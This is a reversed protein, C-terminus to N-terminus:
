AKCGIRYAATALAGLNATGAGCRVAGSGPINFSRWKGPRHTVFFPGYSQGPLYYQKCYSYRFSGSANTQGAYFVFQANRGTNNRISETVSVSTTKTSTGAAKLRMGVRGGAKVLVKAAGSASINASSNFNVGATLKQYRKATKTVKRTGSPPLSYTSLHTIKPAKAASTISYNSEYRDYRCSKNTKVDAQAATTPLTVVAAAVLVTLAIKISKM